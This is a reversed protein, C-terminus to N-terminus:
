HYADGPLQFLIMSKKKKIALTAYLNLARGMGSKRCCAIVIIVPDGANMKEDPVYLTCTSHVHPVKHDPRIGTGPCALSAHNQNWFWFRNQFQFWNRFSEVKSQCQFWYRVNRFRLVKKSSDSDPKCLSDPIPTPILINGSNHMVPVLQRQLM